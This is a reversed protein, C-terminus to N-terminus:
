RTPPRSRFSSFWKETGRGAWDDSNPANAEIQVESALQLRPLASSTDLRPNGIIILASVAVLDDLARLDRLGNNVIVAGELERLGQLGDLSTLAPNNMITIGRAARLGRLGAISTLRPNSLVCLHQAATVSELGDIASLESGIIALDGHVVRCRRGVDRLDKMTKVEVDGVCEGAVTPDTANENTAANVGDGHAACGIAMGALSVTGFVGLKTM